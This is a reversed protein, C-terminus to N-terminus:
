GLVDFTKQLFYRQTQLQQIALQFLRIIYQKDNPLNFINKNSKILVGLHKKLAAEEETIQQLKESINM